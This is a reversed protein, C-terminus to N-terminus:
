RGFAAQILSPSRVLDIAVQGPSGERLTHLANDFKRSTSMDFEGVRLVRVKQRREDSLDRDPRVAQRDTLAVDRHEHLEAEGRPKRSTDVGRERVIGDPEGDLM